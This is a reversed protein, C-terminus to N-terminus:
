EMRLSEVPNAIATRLSQYSVTLATVLFVFVGALLFIWWAIDIRYAYHDLWRNMAIWGIPSAILLALIVLFLFDRSLLGVIRPVSAGLVKRIGIERARQRTLFSTLSFLGMCSLLISIVAFYGIMKGLNEKDQYQANIDKDLFSYEFVREPFVQEWTQKIFAITQPLHDAQISIAFQTFRPVNVDMILPQMPQDLPNFNFDKIVGIVQGKKGDQEDGRIISKGIAAQPNKWNFSRVASESIIFAKLHDTGTAKSFDRGAVIPIKLTSIFNYDVSVWPVFINDKGSYGQPIVLGRVFGQGPLGSAASAAKIRYYKLLENTFVIMRQRIPADVGYGISSAGSGFIPVTVMQEKQFGLPKNHLYAVQQYIVITGIILLVSICFQTVLLTKRLINRSGAEGSKRSIARVLGFRTIFFAPYLGALLSSCFFTMSFLVMNPVTLWSLLTLQKGTLQNLVPMALCCLFLALLYAFFGALLNEGIFQGALQTKGAGMIKRMGVERSRNMSRAISLNIYNVHATFLILLAIVSFIYVYTINGTSPNGIVSASYLHMRRLPDISVSYLHRAREDGYKLLLRSLGTELQVPSAGHKLLIFTNCPNYNWDTKLFDSIGKNEVQFLTEFSILFDFSIDSNSPMKRVVGTVNLLTKNDYFLTRGVPDINGFYKTAMEDTIVVSNVSRLASEPRGSLFRTSFVQFFANDTFYVQQEQFKKEPIKSNRDDQMQMQGSRQYIRSVREAQALDHAIAPGLSVPTTAYSVPNGDGKLNWKVRYINNIEPNFENYSFEERIYILILLCCAMAMAVGVLSISSVLKEKWLNRLAVKLYNKLM